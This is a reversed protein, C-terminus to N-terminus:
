CGEGDVYGSIYSPIDIRASSPRRRVAGNSKDRSVTSATKAKAETTVPDFLKMSEVEWPIARRERTLTEGNNAPTALSIARELPLEDVRCPIESPRNGTARYRDDLSPGTM